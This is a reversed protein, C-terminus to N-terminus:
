PSFIDSYSSKKNIFHQFVISKKYIGTNNEIGIAYSKINQNYKLRKFILRPISFYFAFHAKIIMWILAIQGKSLYFIGAFGDLMLRAPMLWCLKVASNNKFITYLSNRFNLFVKFPSDYDLTGGGLHYVVSNPQYMIHYGARKFRWCLDIEEMHAFYDGDFGGMNVFVKRRLCMAAGSAWFIEAQDNYQGLDNETKLFIRGRCFPYGLFDVLGGAAGAHEFKDKERYSLIKPQVAVTDPYKILSETLAECWGASVEVDSNLLIVFEHNIEAIARNYGEAFGFNRELLILQVQAYYEKLFLVSDDTSDNDAVYIDACDATMTVVSPLFEELHKRGNYNLIVVAVSHKELLPNM